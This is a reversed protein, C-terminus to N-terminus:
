GLYDADDISTLYTDLTRAITLFGKKISFLIMREVTLNNNVWPPTNNVGRHTVRTAKMITSYKTPTGQRPTDFLALYKIARNNVEVIHSNWLHHM